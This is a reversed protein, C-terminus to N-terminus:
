IMIEFTAIKRPDLALKISNKEMQCADTRKENLDTQWAQKIEKCLTVTSNQKQDTSNYVRLIFNDSDQAKKLASLRINPNDISFLSAKGAPLCGAMKKTQVIRVPVNFIDAQLPINSEYWDGKCDSVDVFRQHPLTVMDPWICGPEPGQTKIPRSDVNFHGGSDAHTANELDTPMMVRLYHDRCKNEFTVEVEVARCDKKLTVSTQIKLEELEGSRSQESPIGRKPIEMTLETVVTAQLPGHEKTRIRANCGLSTHIQDNVPVNNIWYDGLEGRDEFYNLDAFTHDLEKCYIDFTGNANFKVNLYENELTHPELRLSPTSVLSSKHCIERDEIDEVSVVKFVKYGGAPIEETDILLRHSNCHYPFGRSHWQIVPYTKEFSGMWQTAVAKGDPDYAFLGNEAKPWFNAEGNPIDVQADIVERRPYPLPNFVVLLVDKEDFGSRDINMILQQMAKNGLAQSIDIVQDLRNEVDRVTKDQTVGNISDHPHSNLLFQWAKALLASPYEVGLMTTLVSFPEAFRILMNEALKNKQKVYLRTTLANGSTPGAPGDRLEGFVKILKSRDINQRMIEAYKRMVTHQWLRGKQPDIANVRDIMEPLMKQPPAYDVGDMMLRDNPVVSDKTTDWLENVMEPTLWEPHWKTPKNLIFFDQERQDKDARHYFVDDNSWQYQWSMM